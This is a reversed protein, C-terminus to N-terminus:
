DKWIFEKTLLFLIDRFYVITQNIPFVNTGFLLFSKCMIMLQGCGYGVEVACDAVPTKDSYCKMIIYDEWMMREVTHEPTNHWSSEILFRYIYANYEEFSQEQIFSECDKALETASLGNSYAM